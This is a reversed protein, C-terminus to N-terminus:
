SQKPSPEAGPECSSESRSSAQESDFLGGETETKRPEEAEIAGAFPAVVTEEADLAALQVALAGPLTAARGEVADAATAADPAGGSVAGAAADQAEPSAIASAAGDETGTAELLADTAAGSAASVGEADHAVAPVEDSKRAAEVKRAAEIDPADTSLRRKTAREALAQVLSAARPKLWAVGHRSARLTFSYSHRAGRGMGRGLRVLVPGAQTKLRVFAARTGYTVALSLRSARAALPAQVVALRSTPESAGSRARLLVDIAAIMQGADAFRDEREKAMAREIFAQLDARGALEGRKEWLKPVPTQFHARLIDQLEGDFPKIGTFLEFLLVGVAYLDSRGDVEGGVAHEPSMYAPTGFTFGVRSLQVGSDLYSGPTFKVLGFDLVKVHEHCPLQQLLLNAPKLDRHVIGLPHAYALALLVQRALALARFPELAGEQDIVERLTRGELLEMVLYPRGRVAGYDTLSVINPHSMAALTLAEREFRPKLEEDGIVDQQLLKIAVRRHLKIQLARYVLGVGGEGLPDEIQYRGELVDGPQLAEGGEGGERPARPLPIRLGLRPPTPLSSM